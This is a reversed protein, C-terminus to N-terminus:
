NTKPSSDIHGDDYIGTIGTVNGNSDKEFKIRFYEIDKFMFTDNSMPTIQFKAGGKRQYYLNGDEYTITREGYTGAYSKMAAADIVISNMLGQLSEILWQYHKKQKEDKTNESIKQLALVQAQELAKPAPVEVDPQVGTGEWNTKTIPNIARGRPVFMVFNSNVYMMQGPNAGGGTVEGVIVGRKLNKLDYAFEEAGSFSYNSTLVYVPVDPMKKGDVKSLTWFEDTEDNKRMYLDNLHVPEKGFLYSCILRVGEPDGGGNQRLDFIIADTGSIFNMVSAVLEKSYGPPAFNRCDIYGVNGSLIKVEKFGFNERKLKEIFWQEEGSNGPSKEAEKLQKADDPSFRIRLHKDNSISQLDATLKQAFEQPVSINDYASSNLQSKIFAEMKKATEPFVYNDNLVKSIKNIMATKTQTDLNVNSQNIIVQQGYITFTSIFLALLFFKTFNCILSRYNNKIM